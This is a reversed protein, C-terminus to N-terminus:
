GHKRGFPRPSTSPSGTRNCVQCNMRDVHGDPVTLRAGPCDMVGVVPCLMSGHCETASEFLHTNKARHARDTVGQVVHHCLAEKGREVDSQEISTAPGAALHQGQGDEFVGFARIVSPTTM